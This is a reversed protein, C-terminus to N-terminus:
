PGYTHMSSGVSRTVVIDNEYTEELAVDPVFVHREVSRLARQVDLSLTYSVDKIKTIMADLLSEGSSATVTTNM